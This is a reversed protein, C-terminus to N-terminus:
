LPIENQFIQALGQKRRIITFSNDTRIMVEASEPFSNYNKAPMASCYAGTGEIVCLDGISAEALTRAALKESDDPDPTILDGSECCHGVVVYSETNGTDKQPIIIIPQQAAYLGPRLIETMGTDTKIFNYGSEGTSTMDQISSLIAGANGVLWSGPEIELHLKRGTERAFNELADCIPQGVKNLDTTTEYQMRGIKFGGGLNLVAINPFQRVLRLNLLAVRQWVAPDSGSGIHSHFRIVNLDYKKVIEKVTEMDEHWIGFSSASGGVNTKRTGGSGLGPNFRLGIERGPMIKGFQELQHLSCANFLVGKYVIDTIDHPLQQTSLLINAPDIGWHLARYVEYESSADIHLGEDNFIKLVAGNSLAKMAYRVTLGYANPFALATRANQRLTKEDYIYTPTGVSNAIDRAIEPRLFRLEEIM